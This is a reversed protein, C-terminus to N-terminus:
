VVDQPSGLRDGLSFAFGTVQTDKRLFSFSRATAAKSGCRKRPIGVNPREFHSDRVHNMKNGRYGDFARQVAVREAVTGTYFRWEKGADFTIAATAIIVDMAEDWIV